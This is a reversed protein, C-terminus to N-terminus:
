ICVIQIQVRMVHELGKIGGVYCLFIPINGNTADDYLTVADNGSGIILSFLELIWRGVSFYDGQGLCRSGHSCPSQM